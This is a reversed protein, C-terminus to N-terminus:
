HSHGSHDTADAHDCTCLYEPRSCGGCNNRNLQFRAYVPAGGPAPILRLIVPMDPNGPLAADSVLSDGEKVFALRTPNSRDGGTLTLSQGAPAEPKHQTDLFTIRVKGDGRVFFDLHQDGATLLRGERLSEALATLSLTLLTLVTRLTQM